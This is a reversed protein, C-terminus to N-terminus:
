QDSHVVNLWSSIYVIFTQDDVNKNETVIKFGYARMLLATGDQTSHFAHILRAITM